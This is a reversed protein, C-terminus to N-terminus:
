YVGLVVHGLDLFRYPPQYPSVSRTSSQATRPRANTHLSATVYPLTLALGRNFTTIIYRYICSTLNEYTQRWLGVALSLPSGRVVRRGNQRNNSFDSARFHDAASIRNDSALSHARRSGQARSRGWRLLAPLGGTPYPFTTSGADGSAAKM